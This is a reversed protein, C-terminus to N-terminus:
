RFNTADKIVLDAQYSGVVIRLPVRSTELSLWVKIAASDLMPNGTNITILQAAVKEGAITITDANSPRLTFVYPKEQWFVAVRTDNVPNTSNKSPKLNFSRMAYVLSLLNHTGIPADVRNSGFAISGTRPDVVNVQSITAMPGSVKLELGFPALTDPNVRTIMSDGLNFPRNGNETGIVRGELVLSDMGNILRREKASLTIEGVSRNAQIVKYNLVEGLAFVLEPLLPQDNVYTPLQPTPKPTPRPTAVVVPTPTPTATAVPEEGVLGSLKAVFAGKATKFRIQVPIHREDSTFNVRLDKIGRSDFFTSQVTSLSTDFDGADTKVAEGVTTAFTIAFNEGNESFTFSGNGGSERVKYIMTLLDLAPVGELNNTIVEKPVVGDNISRSVYLPLGSDAAAFATRTEDITAFAASVLDFTKIKARLEVADRGSFRGRSIVQMELFAVNQYQEYSVNYSVKEGVRFPTPPVQASVAVTAFASLVTMFSLVFATLFHKALRSM